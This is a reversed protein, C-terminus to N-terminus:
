DMKKMPEMPKMPEMDKMPEMPRMAGKDSGDPVDKLVVEEAGDLSPASDLSHLQGDQLGYYVQSTGQLELVLGEGLKLLRPQGKWQGTQVGSGQSQGGGHVRITTQEGQQELYLTQGNGLDAEYAM